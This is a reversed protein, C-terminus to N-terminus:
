KDVKKKLQVSPRFTVVRRGKITMSEGSQPNRGKRDKKNKILFTGFGSLKVADCTKFSNKLSEFFLEVITMAEKKSLGASNCLKEVIDLKTLTKTSKKEQGEQGEQMFGDTYESM